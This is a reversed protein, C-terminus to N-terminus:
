QNEIIQVVPPAEASDKQASKRDQEEKAKKIVEDGAQQGWKMGIEMSEQLVKPTEQIMKQGLPTKYFAILGRLDSLTLHRIYIPVIQAILSDYNFKNKIADMYDTSIDPLQQKYYNVMSVLMKNMNQKAGTLELLEKVALESQKDVPNVQDVPNNLQAWLQMQFCTMFILSLGLCRIVKYM